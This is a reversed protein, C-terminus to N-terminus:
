GSKIGYVFLRNILCPVGYETFDIGILYGENSNRLPQQMAFCHGVRESARKLLFHRVVPIHGPLFERRELSGCVIFNQNELRM